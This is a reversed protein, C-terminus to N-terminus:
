EQFAGRSAYRKILAALEETPEIVIVRKNGSKIFYFYFLNAERNLFWNDKRLGPMSIYRRFSPHAVWGCASVNAVKMSGLEKRRVNNYVRAFDIEGNTFSYEYEVKLHNRRLYLLVAGGGSILLTLILVLDLRPQAMLSSLTILAIAGFLIIVVWCLVYLLNGLTRSRPRVIEEHVHDM